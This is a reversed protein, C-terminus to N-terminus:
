ITDTATGGVGVGDMSVGCRGCMHESHPHHKNRQTAIYINRREIEPTRAEYM